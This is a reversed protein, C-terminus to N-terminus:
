LCSVRFRLGDLAKEVKPGHRGAIADGVRKLRVRQMAMAFAQSPRLNARVAKAGQAKRRRVQRTSNGGTALIIHLLLHGRLAETADLMAISCRRYADLADLQAGHDDPPPHLDTPRTAPRSRESADPRIAAAQCQTPAVATPSSRFGKQAHTTGKLPTGAECGLCNWRAANGTGCPANCAAIEM